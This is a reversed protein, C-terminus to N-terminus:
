RVRGPLHQYRIFPSEGVERKRQREAGLNWALREKGKRDKKRNKETGVEKGERTHELRDEGAENKMSENGRSGGFSGEKGQTQLMTHNKEPSM